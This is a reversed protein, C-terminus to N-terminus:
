SRRVRAACASIAVRPSSTIRPRTWACCASIRRMMPTPRPHRRLCAWSAQMQQLELMDGQVRLALAAAREEMQQREAAKVAAAAAAAEEAVVRAREAKEAKAQEIMGKAEAVLAALSESRDGHKEAEATAEEVAGLASEGSCGCAGGCLVRSHAKCGVCLRWWRAPFPPFRVICRLWLPSVFRADLMAEIAVQLAERAEDMKRQSQREKRLREKEKKGGGASQPQQAGIAVEASPLAPQAADELTSRLGASGSPLTSSRSSEGRSTSAEGSSSVAAAANNSPGGGGKGEASQGEASQGEAAGWVGSCVVCQASLRRWLFAAAPVESSAVWGHALSVADSVGRVPSLEVGRVKSQAKAAQERDEEEILAAANRDAQEAAQQARESTEAAAAAAAAAKRARATRELERLAQAAQHHGLRISLQLPTAGNATQADVQAGM